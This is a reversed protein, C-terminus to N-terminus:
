IRDKLGTRWSIEHLKEHISENNAQHIDALATAYTTLADLWERLSEIALPKARAEDIRYAAEKLRTAAEELQKPLAMDNGKEFTPHPHEDNEANWAVIAGGDM